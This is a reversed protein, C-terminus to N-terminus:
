VRVRVGEETVFLEFEGGGAGECWGVVEGRSVVEERREREGEAEELSIGIMFGRVDRKMLVVRGSIGRSWESPFYQRWIPRRSSVDHSPGTGIYRGGGPIDIEPSQPFLAYSTTLIPISFLQSLKQLSVSLQSYYQTLYTTSRLVHHFSTLSDICILGLSMDKYNGEEDSLIAMLGKVTALLSMGSTPKFILVRALAERIVAEIEGESPGAVPQSHIFGGQANEKVKDGVYTKMVDRLRRVDFRNECDLVVV